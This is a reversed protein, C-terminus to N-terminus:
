ATSGAATEQRHHTPWEGLRVEVVTGGGTRPGIELDADVREARERMGRLGMSAPTAPQLGVGDDEVRIRARTGDVSCSVWLHAARAHKRVNTVAEQAIRLLEVEVATPLRDGHEDLVTHVVLDGASGVRQVHEALATGLGTTADVGMRLDFISLRLEGTVRQVHRRLERVEGAAEPPVREAVDDLLYGISALEQAIGDHIERALRHREDVTALQRVEDFLLACALRPGADAVLQQVLELRDGGSTRSRVTLVAVVEQGMRVPFAERHGDDGAPTSEREGSVAAARALAAALEEEEPKGAEGAGALWTMQGESSRVALTHRGTPHVTAVDDLLAAALTAPDLGLSLNRAVEQLETLLRFADAYATDSYSRNALTLRRIWGGIGGTVAAVASWQALGELQPLIGAPESVTVVALLWAVGGLCGAGAGAGVGAARGAAFAPVLLLPTYVTGIDGISGIVLGLVAAEALAQLLRVNSGTLPVAGLAAVVTLVLAPGIVVDPPFQYALLATGVVLIAARGLLPGVPGDVWRDTLMRRVM